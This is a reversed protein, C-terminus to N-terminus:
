LDNLSLPKGLIHKYFAPTFYADLLYGDHLAKGVMRGIFKFFFLHNSNVYSDPRPQYTSGTSSPTFLAYHPNFIEKSLLMFWERTLGGVDEGEEGDFTIHFKHMLQAATMPMIQNMSSLLVNERVVNINIEEAQQNKRLNKLETKFMSRKNEYDILTSNKSLIKIIPETFISANEKSRHTKKVSNLVEKLLHNVMPKANTKLINFVEGLAREVEIGFLPSSISVKKTSNLEEMKSIENTKQQEEEEATVINYVVFFSSLIVEIRELHHIKKPYNVSLGSCLKFLEILAPCELVRKFERLM